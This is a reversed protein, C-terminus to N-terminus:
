MAALAEQGDLGEAAAKLERIIRDGVQDYTAIFLDKKSGFLRFLYPQSIGARAAITETSTGACGDLAFQHVAADTVAERRGAATLRGRPAQEAGPVEVPPGSTM